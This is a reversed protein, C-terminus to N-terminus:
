IEETLMALAMEAIEQRDEFRGELCVKREDKLAMLTLMDGEIQAHM